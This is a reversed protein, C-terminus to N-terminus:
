ALLVGFGRDISLTQYGFYYLYLYYNQSLQPLFSELFKIKLNTTKSALTRFDYDGRKLPNKPESSFCYTYITTDPVSLGHELPQKYTYYLDGTLGKTINENNIFLDTYDLVPVYYVTEGKWNVFRTYSKVLDSVYGYSYRKDYNLPDTEYNQDRIFWTVMSVNFNARMNITVLGKNFLQPTEIDVYPIVIQHNKLKYYNREETTLFIQDFLIAPETIDLDGPFDTFWTQDNFYLKIYVIQNTIACLPLYQDKECFFFKFPIILEPGRLIEDLVLSEDASMFLEDHIRAWNDDYRQIVFENFCLEVKKFLARGVRPTYNVNPPLKCKFYMNSLLDGNERPNLPITLTGGVYPPSTTVKIEKQVISFNTHRYLKPTFDTNKEYLIEEQPGVADMGMQAVSAFYRTNSEFLNSSSYFISSVNDSLDRVNFDGVISVTEVNSAVNVTPFSPRTLWLDVQVETNSQIKSLEFTDDLVIREYTITYNEKPDPKLEGATLPNSRVITKRAATTTEDTHDIIIM